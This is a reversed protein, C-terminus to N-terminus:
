AVEDQTSGAYEYGTRDWCWTPPAWATLAGLEISLDSACRSIMTGATNLPAPFKVAIPTATKMIIPARADKRLIRAEQFCECFCISSPLALLLEARASDASHTSNPFTYSRVCNM